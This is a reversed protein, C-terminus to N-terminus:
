KEILFYIRLMTSLANFVLYNKTKMSILGLNFESVETVYGTKNVFIEFDHNSVEYQDMYFAALQVTRAPGEGDSVIKPSDTGMLFTQGKLLVMSSYKLGHDHEPNSHPVNPEMWKTKEHNDLEKSKGFIGDTRSTKSCGCDGVTADKCDSSHSAGDETTIVSSFLLMCIVLFFLRRSIQFVTLAFFVCKHGRISTIICM